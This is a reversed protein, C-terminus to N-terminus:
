LSFSEMYLDKIILKLKNKDKIEDMADIEKSIITVTDESVDVDSDDLKSAISNDEIIQLQHVGVQNLSDVFNDFLNLNKKNLVVIKVFCNTFKDFKIKKLLKEFKPDTDDYRLTYFINNTNEIFDLTRTDTDFIHFGKKSGVDSFTLQYQTGLYNINKYSQRLHFHGSLVKDFNKFIFDDIGTMHRIGTMVEFGNIEFHGAIVSCSTNQIFDVCQEFNDTTIWPVVAVCMDDYQIEKPETHIEINSYGVSFLEIISNLSNSNKFYTDHNGLTIDLKINEDQFKQIFRKRVQSLTNFNVYKRRDLLDGLHLVNKINNEKLYPFFQSEFYNLSYELFLPSDNRAGFHTDNIIAIKM